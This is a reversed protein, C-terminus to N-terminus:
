VRLERLADILHEPEDGKRLYLDPEGRVFQQAAHPEHGSYVVVKAGPALQRVHDVALEDDGAAMTDLLVVDPHADRLAAVAEIRDHAIGVLDLDDAEELWFGVVAGFSHSDDCLFIRM